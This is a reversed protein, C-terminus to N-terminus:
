LPHAIDRLLYQRVGKKWQGRASSSPPWASARMGSAGDYLLSLQARRVHPVRRTLPPFLCRHSVDGMPPWSQAGHTLRGTGADLQTHDIHVIEFPRDGHRPLTFTLEWYMPEYPYAARRGARKKVQEYRPRRNIAAVFLRYSPITVLGKKQCFIVFEGYVERKRKQKHTEYESEIFERLMSIVEEPFRPLRNGCHHYNSLLGVYGCGLTQTAERYKAAWDRITRAPTTTDVPRRGELVPKIIAYRRNAEALANRDAKM